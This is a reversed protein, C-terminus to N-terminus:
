SLPHEFNFISKNEVLFFNLIYVTINMNNNIFVDVEIGCIGLYIRQIFTVPHRRRLKDTLRLIKCIGTGIHNEKVTLNTM